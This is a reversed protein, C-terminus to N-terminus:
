MMHKFFYYELRTRPESPEMFDEGSKSADMHLPHLTILSQIRVWAKKQKPLICKQENGYHFLYAAMIPIGIFLGFLGFGVGETNVHM